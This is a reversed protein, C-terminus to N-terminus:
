QRGGDVVDHILKFGEICAKEAPMVVADQGLHVLAARYLECLGAEGVLVLPSAGMLDAYVDAADCIDSGILIGSALSAGDEYALEGLVSRSRVSFLHRMLGGGSAGYDVGLRFVESVQAGGKLHHKLLSSTSLAEYLEGVLSTSFAHVAGDQIAVWKTHTGPLCLLGHGKRFRQESRVVGLCLVEEGRIVDPVGDASRCTLGPSVRLVHDGITLSTMRRAVDEPDIPCDLYPLETWGVSSGIMGCCFLAHAVPPWRTVVADVASAMGERELSAVGAATALRDLLEGSPGVRYARFNSSGWDIAVFGGNM